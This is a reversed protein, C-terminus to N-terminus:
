IFSTNPLLITRTCYGILGPLPYLAMISTSSIFIYLQPGSPPTGVMESIGASWIPFACSSLLSSTSAAASFSSFRISFNKSWPMSVSSSIRSPIRLPNASRLMRGTNQTLANFSIPTRRIISNRPLTTGNTLSIGLGTLVFPSSTAASGSPGTLRNTNLVETSGCIPSTDYKLTIDPVNFAPLSRVLIRVPLLSRIACIKQTHPCIRVATSSIFAPSIPAVTLIFSTLVPSVSFSFPQSFTNSKM